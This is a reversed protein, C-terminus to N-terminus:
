SACSTRRTRMAWHECGALSTQSGWCRSEAYEVLSADCETSISLGANWSFLAVDCIHRQAIKKNRLGLSEIVQNSALNVTALAVLVGDERFSWIDIEGSVFKEWYTDNEALCNGSLRGLGIIANLSSCRTAVLSGALRQAPERLIQYRRSKLNASRAQALISGIEWLYLDRRHRIGKLFAGAERAMPRGRQQALDAIEALSDFDIRIWDLLDQKRRENFRFLKLGENFKQHAWAPDEKRRRARHITAHQDQTRLYFSKLASHYNQLVPPLGELADAIASQFATGNIIDRTVIKGKTHDIFSAGRDCAIPLSQHPIM